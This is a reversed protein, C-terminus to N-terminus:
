GLRLLTVAIRGGFCVDVDSGPQRARGHYDGAYHFLDAERRFRLPLPAPDLPCFVIEPDPAGPALHPLNVNWFTGPSHPRLLLERLVGLVLASARDWDFEQARRRYQSVAIGPRGHLAGERVAAVTGSHYVDTGLNGGANVGALVWATEPALDHLAVRVCDAPTGEVAFRDPEVYRVRFPADTTVRHGCGSHGAAPAVIRVRGLQRAAAHLAALGPADIGDDNTLLLNM